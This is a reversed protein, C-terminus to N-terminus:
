EPLRDQEDDKIIAGDITDRNCRGRYFVGAERLLMLTFCAPRDHDKCDMCSAYAGKLMGLRESRPDKPKRM